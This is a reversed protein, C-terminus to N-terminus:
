RNRGVIQDHYFDDNSDDVGRVSKFSKKPYVGHITVLQKM